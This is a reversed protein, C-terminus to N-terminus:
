RHYITEIARYYITEGWMTLTEEAPEQFTVRANTYGNYTWTEVSAVTAPRLNLTGAGLLIRDGEAVTRSTILHSQRATTSM